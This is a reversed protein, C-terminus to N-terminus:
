CFFGVHLVETCNKFHGLDNKRSIEADEEIYTAVRPSTHILDSPLVAEAGYVLFFPTYGTSRNSTTRLSWIVFPLEKAWAWAARRLPAELIPKLTPTGRM